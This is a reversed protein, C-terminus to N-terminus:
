AAARDEGEGAELEHLCRRLDYLALGVVPDAATRAAVARGGARTVLLAGRSTLAAVDTVDTAARVRGAADLLARAASALREASAPDSTAALARGDDALAVAEEVQSSIEMLDALAAAADV